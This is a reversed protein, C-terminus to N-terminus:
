RTSRLLGDAGIDFTDFVVGLVRATAGRRPDGRPGAVSRGGNRGPFLTLTGSAQRHTRPCRGDLVLGDRTQPVAATEPSRPGVMAPGRNAPRIGLEPVRSGLATGSQHAPLRAALRSAHWDRGTGELPHLDREKSRRVGNGSLQSPQSGEGSGGRGAFSLDPMCYCTRCHQACGTM